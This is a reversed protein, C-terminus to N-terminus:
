IPSHRLQKASGAYATLCVKFARDERIKDSPLSNPVEPSYVTQSRSPLRVCFTILKLLLPRVMSINQRAVAAFIKGKGVPPASAFKLQLAFFCESLKCFKVCCFM